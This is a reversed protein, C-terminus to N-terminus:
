IVQSLTSHCYIAQRMLDVKISEDRDIELLTTLYYHTGLYRFIKKREFAAGLLSGETLRKGIDPLGQGMYQSWCLGEIEPPEM